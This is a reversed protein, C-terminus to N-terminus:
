LQKKKISSKGVFWKRREPNYYVNMRDSGPYNKSKMRNMEATALSKTNHPVKLYDHNKQGFKSVNDEVKIQNKKYYIYLFLLALITVAIGAVLFVYM